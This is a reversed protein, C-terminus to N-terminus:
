SHIHTKLSSHCVGDLDFRLVGGMLFMLSYNELFKWEFRKITFFCVQGIKKRGLTNVGLLGQLVNGKIM